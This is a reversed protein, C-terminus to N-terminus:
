IDVDIIYRDYGNIVVTNKTTKKWTNLTLADGATGSAKQDQIM